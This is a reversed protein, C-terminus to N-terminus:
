SRRARLEADPFAQLFWDAINAPVAAGFYPLISVLASEGGADPTHTAVGLVDGSAPSPERGWAERLREEHFPRGDGAGSVKWVLEGEAENWVWKFRETAPNGFTPPWVAFGSEWNDSRM